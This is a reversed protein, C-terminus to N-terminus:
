QPPNKKRFHGDAMMLWRFAGPPGMMPMVSHWFPLRYISISGFSNGDVWGNLYGHNEYLLYHHDVLKNPLSLHFSIFPRDKGTDEDCDWDNHFGIHDGPAYGNVQVFHIDFQIDIDYGTTKNILEAMSDSRLLPFLGTEEHIQGSFIGEPDEELGFFKPDKSLSLDVLYGRYLSQSFPAIAPKGLEENGYERPANLHIDYRRIAPRIHTELVDVLKQAAAPDILGKLSVYPTELSDKAFCPYATGNRLIKRGKANLLDAFETPIKTKKKM